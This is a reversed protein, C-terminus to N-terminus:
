LQRLYDVLMSVPRGTAGKDKGKLWATGAIDIHAWSQDKVFEALFCGATITGAGPSGINALDAFNSELKKTYEPWIPFAWLKDNTRLGANILAASLSDDNSMLGSAHEGLAVVCAGTLTAIDVIAKPNFRQVYTLTDCLVLRGEADTNLIEITKGSMSTVIDGPRTANAAPMNEAAAVACILNIPLQMQIVSKMVGFVSAAGCMDFKMEDMAAGPKISIGGSDFTIGKGVLVVPKLEGPGNQYNMIILKSEQESGRGVSLFSHMGLTDMDAEDLVDVSLQEYNSALETATNALYTPHCINPPMNALDKAFSKGLGIAIGAKIGDRLSPTSAEDNSLISIEELRITEEKHQKLDAFQYLADYFSAAITQGLCDLARETVKLGDVAIGVHNVELTSLQSALDTMLTQLKDLPLVFSDVYVLVLNKHQLKEIDYLFATFGQKRKLNGTELMRNVLGPLLEKLAMSSVSLIPADSVFVVLYESSNQLLNSGVINLNLNM